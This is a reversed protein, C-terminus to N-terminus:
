WLEDGAVVCVFALAEQKWRACGMRRYNEKERTRAKRWYTATEEGSEQEVRKSVVEHKRLRRNM